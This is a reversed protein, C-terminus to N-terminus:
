TESTCFPPRVAFHHDDRKHPPTMNLEPGPPTWARASPAPLRLDRRRPVPQSRPRPTARITGWYRGPDHARVPCKAERVPAEDHIQPTASVLLCPSAPRPVGEHWGAGRPRAVPRGARPRWSVPACRLHCPGLGHDARRDDYLWNVGISTFSCYLPRHARLCGRGRRPSNPLM